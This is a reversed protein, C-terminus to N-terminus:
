LIANYVNTAIYVNKLKNNIKAEVFNKLNKLVESLCSKVGQVIRSKLAIM